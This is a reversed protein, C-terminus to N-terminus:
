RRLILRLTFYVWEQLQFVRYNRCWTYGFKPAVPAATFTHYFSRLTAKIDKREARSFADRHQVYFWIMGIYNLWRHQEYFAIIEPEVHEAQLTRLMSLNADLYLFRNMTIANTCSDPHKRYYYIGRCMRVRRSHLYHLRTTNDDSFLRCSADYPYRKHISARVVYLGHLQWDLSARFAEMGTLMTDPAMNTPYPEEYVEAAEGKAGKAPTVSEYHQMLQLVACDTEDDLVKLAQELCDEALWDDADLMTIFEGQAQQLALNRAVAQGANVAMPLVKVRGDKRAYDNLIALSGDTSADDVCLLEWSEVNQSLVSDLAQRLYREANYVAMLISVHPKNQPTSEM